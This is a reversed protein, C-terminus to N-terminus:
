CTVLFTLQNLDNHFTKIMHKTGIQNRRSHDVVNQPIRANNQRKSLAKVPYVLPFLKCTSDHLWNAIIYKYWSVFGVYYRRLMQKRVMGFSTAKVSTVLILVTLISIPESVM